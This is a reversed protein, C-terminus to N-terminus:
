EENHSARKGPRSAEAASLAQHILNSTDDIIANCDTRSLPADVVWELRLESVSKPKPIISIHANITKEVRGSPVLWRMDSYSDDILLMSAQIEGSQKDDYNIRWRYRGHYYTKLVRKVTAIALPAPVRYEIGAPADRLADKHALYAATAGGVVVAAGLAPLFGAELNYITNLYIGEIIVFAAAGTAIPLM